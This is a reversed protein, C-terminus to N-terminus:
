IVSIRLATAHGCAIKHREHSHTKSSPFTIFAMVGQFVKIDETAFRKFMPSVNFNLRLSLSLKLYPWIM